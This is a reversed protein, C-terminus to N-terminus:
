AKKRYRPSTEEKISKRMMNNATGAAAVAAAAVAASANAAANAANTANAKDLANLKDIVAERFGLTSTLHVKMDETISALYSDTKLIYAELAKLRQDQIGMQVSVKALEHVDNQLTVFKATFAEYGSQLLNIQEKLKWVFYVGGTLITFITLVNGLDFKPDFIM